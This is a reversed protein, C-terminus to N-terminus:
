SVAAITHARIGPGGHHVLRGDAKIAQWLSTKLHSAVIELYIADEEATWKSHVQKQAIEVHTENIPVPVVTSVEGESKNPSKKAKAKKPETPSPSVDSEPKFDSGYEEQDLSPKIDLQSSDSSTPTTQDDLSRKPM